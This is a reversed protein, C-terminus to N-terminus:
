ATPRHPAPAAPSRTTTWCATSSARKRTESDILLYSVTSTAEDFFGEVHLNTGIIM